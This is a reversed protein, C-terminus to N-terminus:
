YVSFSLPLLDDSDPAFGPQLPPTPLECRLPCPAPFPSWFAVGWGGGGWGWGRGHSPSSPHAHPTGGEPRWIEDDRLSGEPRRWGDEQARPRWDFSTSSTLGERLSLPSPPFSLRLPLGWKNFEPM